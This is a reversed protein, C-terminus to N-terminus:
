LSTNFSGKGVRQSLMLTLPAGLAGAPTRGRGQVLAEAKSKGAWAAPGRSKSASPLEGENPGQPEAGARARERWPGSPVAQHARAAALPHPGGPLHEQGQAGQIGPKNGEPRVASPTTRPNM